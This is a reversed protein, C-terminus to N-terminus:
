AAERLDIQGTVAATILASRREKLLEISRETKSIITDLRLTERDLYDTILDQEDSPPLPIEFSNLTETTLQNITTTLFRGAQFKFLSSNLVYYLFKYHKTRFVTTFAGFSLGVLLSDIMGNKGILSRSGNRSCILIDGLRTVLQNPISAKVFVNDNLTIKGKQINSSRLVLTGEGEDVVDEPSYTLGIIASGIYKLPTVNWENPVQGLWELDSDKMKANPNLGKTVAHTILAQRKEQLLEIFRTKKKVLGDIYVTERNIWSCIVRQEELSPIPVVINRIADQGLGFRTVGSVEVFFYAKTSQSQLLRFLFEGDVGYSRFITLHYGCVVGPITQPVFTPIGIDDATESDKTIIVDGAFLSFAEIESESATSRMFDLTPTITENYYVDTYNCLNVEVQGEYTKKDVNSNKSNAVFRLRKVNWENPVDGLWAVGSAKNVPYPKYHSM